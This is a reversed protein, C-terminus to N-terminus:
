CSIVTRALLRQQLAPRGRETSDARVDARPDVRGLRGGRTTEPLPAPQDPRRV